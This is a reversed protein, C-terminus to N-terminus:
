RYKTRLPGKQVKGNPTLPLAPEFFVAKPVKYGALHARTHAKVEDETLSKGAAVVVVATVREGWVPDPTGIVAALAIDPHKMLALEVEASYVNEAGSIIMDKKRDVLYIFGEEDMWGLDGTHYWGNRLVESTVEPLNKYGSMVMPTRAVLEGVTGRPAEQGADDAIKLTVLPVARGCSGLRGPVGSVHDAHPFVTGIWMETAGFHQRFECRMTKIARKLLQEGIPAGYYIVSRVSQFDDAQFEPHDLLMAITTPVLPALTARDRRMTKLFAVPDFAPILSLTAGHYLGAIPVWSGALHFNPMSSLMIDDDRWQLAPDLTGALFSYQFAEMSSMVGKPRGTTGSTYSLLAIDEPAIPIEPDERSVGEIWSTLGGEMGKSPHFDVVRFDFECRNQLQRAADVFEAGVFVVPPRADDLIGVLEEVALRWNFPAFACGLKAAAFWIEFVEVSNKALLGVIDGRKVGLRTLHNAIASSREHLQAYTRSTEAEILAVREARERARYRVVDPLAKIEAFHWM